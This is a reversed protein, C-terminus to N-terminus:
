WLDEDEEQEEDAARGERDVAEDVVDVNEVPM